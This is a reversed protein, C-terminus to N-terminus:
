LLSMIHLPVRPPPSVQIYLSGKPQGEPWMEPSPPQWSAKMEPESLAAAPIKKKAPIQFLQWSKITCKSSNGPIVAPLLFHLHMEELGALTVALSFLAKGEMPPSVTFLILRYEHELYCRYTTIEDPRAPMTSPQITHSFSSQM